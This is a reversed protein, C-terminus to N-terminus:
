PVLLLITCSLNSVQSSVVVGMCSDAPCCWSDVCEPACFELLLYPGKAVEINRGYVIRGLSEWPSNGDPLKGIRKEGILGGM